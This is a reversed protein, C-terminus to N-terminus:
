YRKWLQRSFLVLFAVYELRGLIMLIAFLIKSTTGVEAFSQEGGMEALAPGINGLCSVVASLSGLLSQSPELIQLAFTGMIAFFGFLSLVLFLQEVSSELVRRGNLKIPAVVKPRFTRHLGSKLFRIWFIIRSVKLGGATSGSCGGIVMLLILIGVGLQSWEGFDSSVYGTSTVVSVVNFVIDVPDVGYFGGQFHQGVLVASALLVLGLFWYVEEFKERLDKWKRKMVTLYFPFSIAGLIMFIMLWIKSAVGFPESAVSAKETGFGGTSVATLAHNVAQFPTLGMAWLGLACTITFGLYLVWLRRMTQRLSAIDTNSLSSEAGILTKSSSTMGSLVVVFMALIGMGGVWQTFSRWMLISKPLSELDVFITSGTTTLGSVGEFFAYDLAVHPDCFFYPLAAVLSCAFWGAGVLAMAERRRMAPPQKSHRGILHASGLLTGGAVLAITLSLAWGGLDLGTEHLDSAPVIASLTVSIGMAIGLLLVMM